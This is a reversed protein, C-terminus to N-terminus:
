VSGGTYPWCYAQETETSRTHWSVNNESRRAGPDDVVGAKAFRVPHIQEYNFRNLKNM